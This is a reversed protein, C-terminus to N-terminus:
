NRRSAPAHGVMDRFVAVLEAHDRDAEIALRKLGFHVHAVQRYYGTYTYNITAGALAGLVPVTQAALKQGLVAALRPAVRAILAQLAAGSVAVRTGIFALDAGDDHSLPGAAAFVQVCDFMVGREGPEFGHEAAVDQITRLLLTTTFPLEAIAGPLGGFGGAAGMATTLARAMWFPNEPVVGRSRDAAQMAGHLARETVGQLRARGEPPLRELLREAQGGLLNLLEIGANAARAHGAALSRLRAAVADENLPRDLVEM